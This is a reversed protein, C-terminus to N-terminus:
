KCLKDLEGVREMEIVREITLSPLEAQGIPKAESNYKTCIIQAKRGLLKNIIGKVSKEQCAAKMREMLTTKKSEFRYSNGNELYMDGILNRKSDYFLGRDVQPNVYRRFYRISTGKEPDVLHLYRSNSNESHYGRTTVSKVKETKLNKAMTVFADRNGFYQIKLNLNPYIVTTVDDVTKVIPRTGLGKFNPQNLSNNNISSISNVQM